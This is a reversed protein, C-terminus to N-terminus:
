VKSERDWIVCQPQQPKGVFVRQGPHPCFDEIRVDLHWREHRALKGCYRCKIIFPTVGDRSNWLIERARCSECVYEMLCFTEPHKFDYINESM